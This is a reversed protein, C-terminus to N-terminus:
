IPAIEIGKVKEVIGLEKIIKAKYEAIFEPTYIVRYNIYYEL